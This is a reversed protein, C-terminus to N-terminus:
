ILEKKERGLPSVIWIFEAINRTSYTGREGKGGRGKKFLFGTGTGRNRSDKEKSEVM